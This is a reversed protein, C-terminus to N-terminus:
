KVYVLITVAAVSVWHAVISGALHNTRERVISLIVGGIGVVLLSALYGLAQALVTPIFPLEVTNQQLTLANVGLHWLAFVLNTAILARTTKLSRKFLAQLVGRFLIEETLATAITLEAGLRWLLGLLSLDQIEPYHAPGALLFPFVLFALSPIALLCGVLIGIIASSKWQKGGIGLEGCGLRPFARAWWLVMVLVVVAWFFYVWERNLGTIYVFLTLCNSLVVLAISLGIALQM